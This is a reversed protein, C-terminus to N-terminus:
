FSVAFFTDYTHGMDLQRHDVCRHMERLSVKSRALAADCKAKVTTALGLYELVHSPEVISKEWNILFGLSQLLEVVKDVDAKTSDKSINM